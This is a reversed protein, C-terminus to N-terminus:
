LNKRFIALYVDVNAGVKLKGIYTEPVTHRFM